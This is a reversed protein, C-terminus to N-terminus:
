NPARKGAVFARERLAPICLLGLLLGKWPISLHVKRAGFAFCAAGFLPKRAVSHSGSTM